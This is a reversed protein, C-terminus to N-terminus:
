ENGNEGMADNIIKRLDSIARLNNLQKSIRKEREEAIKDIFGNQRLEKVTEACLKELLTLAEDPNMEYAYRIDEEMKKPHKLEVDCAAMLVYTQWLPEIDISKKLLSYAKQFHGLSMQAGGWLAYTGSTPDLKAMKEYTASSDEFKEMMGQVEALANLISIDDPKRESAAQMMTAAESLCQMDQFAYGARMLTNYDTPDSAISEWVRDVAEQKRGLENMVGSMLILISSRQEGEARDAAEEFARVAEEKKGLEILCRARMVLPDPEEPIIAAAYEYAELAEEWRGDDSACNGKALWADFNFPDLALVKESLEPVCDYNGRQIESYLMGSLTKADDPHAKLSLEYYHLATDYQGANMFGLGLDYPIFEQPEDMKMALEAMELAEAERGLKALAASRLICQFPHDPQFFLNLKNLADEPDGCNLSFEADMQQVLYDDPHLKKALLLVEHTKEIDPLEAYYHFIEDLEVPDLYISEGSAVLAEYHEVTDPKQM